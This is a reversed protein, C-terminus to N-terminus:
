SFHVRSILPLELHRLFEASSKTLALYKNIQITYPHTTAEAFINNLTIIQLTPDTM